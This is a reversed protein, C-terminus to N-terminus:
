NESVGLHSDLITRVFDLATKLIRQEIIRLQRLGLHVPDFHAKQKMEADYQQEEETLSSTRYAKQRLELAGICIVLAARSVWAVGPPPLKRGGAALVAALSSEAAPGSPLASWDEDAMAYCSAVVLLARLGRVGGSAAPRRSLSLEVGLLDEVGDWPSPDVVGLKELLPARPLKGVCGHRKASAQVLEVSISVVEKASLTIEASTKALDAFGYRYLSDAASLEGYSQLIEGPAIHRIARGRVSGKHCRFELHPKGHNAQDVFPVM